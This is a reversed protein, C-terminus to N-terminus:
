ATDGRRQAQKYKKYMTYAANKRGGTKQMFYNLTGPVAPMKKGDKNEAGARSKNAVAGRKDGVRNPKASPKGASRNANKEATEGGAKSLAGEVDHRGSISFQPM